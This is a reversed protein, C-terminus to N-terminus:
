QAALMVLDINAPILRRLLKGMDVMLVNLDFVCPEISQKRVFALLQRTLSTARDAAKQIEALDSCLTGDPPLDRLALEAYGSIATLLNNFDHVIGGALFGLSEGKQVQLLQAEYDDREAIARRLQIEAVVAAAIDHLLGIESSSWPHPHYDLACLAGLIHGDPMVLPVGAYAVIGLECIATDAHLMAHLRTDPVSLPARPAVLLQCFSHSLPVQRRAALPEPLGYSSKFYVHEAGVLSIIAMPTGLVHATLRTLRDFAPEAPTDLLGAKELAALRAPDRIVSCATPTM